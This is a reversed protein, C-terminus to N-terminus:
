LIGGPRLICLCEQIFKPWKEPLMLGVIGRTNVLDFSGDAFDVPKLANMVRVSANELGQM